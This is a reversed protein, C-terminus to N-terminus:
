PKPAPFMTPGPMPEVKEEDHILAAIEAVTHNVVISSNMCRIWITSQHHLTELQQSEGEAARNVLTTSVLGIERVPVIFTGDDTPRDMEIMEFGIFRLTM